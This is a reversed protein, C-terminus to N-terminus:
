RGETHVEVDPVPLQSQDARSGDLFGETLEAVLSVHEVLVSRHPQPGRVETVVLVPDQDLAVALEGVQSRVDGVVAVLEGPGLPQDVHPAGVVMAVHGAHLRGHGGQAVVRTLELNGDDM